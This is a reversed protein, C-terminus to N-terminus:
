GGHGRRERQACCSFFQPYAVVEITVGAPLYRRGREIKRRQASAGGRWICKQALVLPWAEDIVSRWCGRASVRARDHSSACGFPVMSVVTDSRARCHAPVAGRRRPAELCPNLRTLEHARGGQVATGHEACLRRGHLLRAVALAGEGGRSWSRRNRCRQGCRHLPSCLAFMREGVHLPGPWRHGHPRRAGYTTRHECRQGDSHGSRPGVGPAPGQCGKRAGVHAFRPDSRLFPKQLDFLFFWRLFSSAGQGFSRSL